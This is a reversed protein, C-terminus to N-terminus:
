SASLTYRAPRVVMSMRPIKATTRDAAIIVERVSLIVFGRFRVTLAALRIAAPSRVLSREVIAILASSDPIRM